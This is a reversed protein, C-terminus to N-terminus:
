QEMSLSAACWWPSSRSFPVEGRHVEQTRIETRYTAIPNVDTHKGPSDLPTWAAGEDYTFRMWGGIANNEDM